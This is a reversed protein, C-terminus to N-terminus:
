HLRSERAFISRQFNQMAVSSLSDSLTQVRVVTEKSDVILPITYRAVATANEGIGYRVEPDRTLRGLLIVKNM